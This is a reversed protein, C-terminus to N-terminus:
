ILQSREDLYNQEVKDEDFCKKCEDCIAQNPYNLCNTRESCVNCDGCVKMYPCDENCNM